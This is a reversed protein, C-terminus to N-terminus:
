NKKTAHKRERNQQDRYLIYNKATLHFNSAMLIEEVINQIGEISPVYLWDKAQIENLVKVVANSIKAADDLSGENSADMSKKVALTIKNADFPKISGNRKKVELIGM